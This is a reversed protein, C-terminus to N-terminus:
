KKLLAREKEVLFDVIELMKDLGGAHMREVRYKGNVVIEPASVPKYVRMLAESLQVQKDVKSSKYVKDFDAKKAGYKAYIDFLDKKLRINKQEIVLARFLPDHTKDLIGLEDAVYFARAFYKMPENFVAPLKRFDIDKKQRFAWNKIHPEFEYCHACGYAFIELVEVKSSDRTAVPKDLIVYHDGARFGSTSQGSRREDLAKVEKKIDNISISLAVTKRKASLIVIDKKPVDSFSGIKGTPATVIKDVVEMGETIKGFVAYGARMGQPDLSSNDNVNIFFQSTASNPSNTRAMSISGRLNKLGNQSENIIAPHTKKKNMGKEFGGGQIMFGPIIRHFITGDYYGEDVYSLFNEVTKPAKEADLSLTFAGMTTKFVVEEANAATINAALLCLVSVLSFLFRKIM